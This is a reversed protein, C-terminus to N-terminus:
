EDTVTDSLVEKVKIALQKLTFPKAIFNFNRETGYTSVFADEGYGSMFIVKIDNYQKNVEEVMSPGNMGPMVVDTIIIDINEGETEVIELAAEGCDAELVKYGKNTLAQASFARVPHEDEVLLVVADGTLDNTVDTQEKEKKAVLEKADYAKFYISFKTGKNESSSVYIYGGTQNIIGYVTSLGLGTGSGIEKTTFFPEFIKDLVKKPIGYGTDVVDIRVYMGDIIQGEDAPAVLDSDIPHEADVHVNSTEIILIGGEEQMADRANVALNIIVQELQGQDVRVHSVDQGHRMSLEINEGILRRVLNSLEALVETINIIEPQLTQKRSFALLQRVLNAARTSNQKIQMIDAFSHDGAPHRLLLLDCFGMIATLLNNFDHAIGGALQGVAQMKQSHAFRLELNKQDTTDVMYVVYSPADTESESQVLPGFYMLVSKGEEGKLVVDYQKLQNISVTKDDPVSADFINRVEDASNSTVMGLIDASANQFNEEGVLEIFKRNSKIVDGKDDLLAMAIPSHQAYLDWSDGEIAVARNEVTEVSSLPRQLIIGGFKCKTKSDAATLKVHQVFYDGRKENETNFSSKGEWETKFDYEIANINNTKMVDCIKHGSAIFDDKEEDLLTAFVKNVYVFRGEHDTIYCGIDLKELVEIGDGIDIHEVARIIFYGEPREIPSVILKVRANSPENDFFQGAEMAKKQVAAMSFDMIASNNNVLADLLADQDKEVLGGSEILANVGRLGKKRLHQFPQMDSLNSHIISGDPRIIMYFVVGTAAAASYLANQFEIAMIIERNNYIHVIMFFILVLFIAASLIVFKQESVHLSVTGYVLGLFSISFFLFIVWISGGYRRKIFAHRDRKRNEKGWYRAM